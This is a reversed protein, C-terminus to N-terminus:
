ILQTAASSTLPVRMQVNAPLWDKPLDLGPVPSVGVVEVQQPVPQAVAASTSGLLAAALGVATVTCGLKPQVNPCPARRIM